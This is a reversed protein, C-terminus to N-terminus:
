SAPLPVGTNAHCRYGNAHKALYQQYDGAHYAHASCGEFVVSDRGLRTM